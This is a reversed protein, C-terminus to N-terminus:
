STLPRAAVAPGGLRGLTAACSREDDDFVHDDSLAVVLVGTVAGDRTMPVGLVSGRADCTDFAALTGWQRERETRSEAVAMEGSRLPQAVFGALEPAINNFSPVSSALVSFGGAGNPVVVAALAANLTPQAAAILARAASGADRSASLAAILQHLANLRLSAGAAQASVAESFEPDNEVHHRVIQSTLRTAIGARMPQLAVGALLFTVVMGFLIIRQASASRVSQLRTLEALVRLEEDRMQTVIKMLSDTATASLDGNLFKRASDVGVHERILLTTRFADFSAAIRRGLEDLNQRQRPNDETGRAMIDLADEVRVQADQLADKSTSDKRIVYAKAAREADQRSVVVRFAAAVNTNAREVARDAAVLRSAYYYSMAGFLGVVVLAAGVTISLKQLPTLRM